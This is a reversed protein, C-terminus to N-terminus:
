LIFDGEALNSVEVQIQFDAKGNGDIDGEVIVFGVKKVIHLEGKRDHFDQEGVFKFKQNGNIGDKADISRLDIRDLEGGEIGSFDFIVDRNAGKVSENKSNFDFVDSDLGGDLIDKGLGGRLTDIGSGGGLTDTGLGGVLTDDGGNGQLENNLDNGILKDAHGSGKLNEVTFYTDGQADGGLGLGTRLSATVGTLSDGYDVTDTGDGGRFTDAGADGFLDDDDNGGRLIDNGEGGSIDDNGDGGHLDDDDGDGFINDAGGLGFIFDNGGLGHITDADNTTGPTFNEDIIEPNDTGDVTAM